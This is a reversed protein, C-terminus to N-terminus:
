ADERLEHEANKLLAKVAKEVAGDICKVVVVDEGSAEVSVQVRKLDSAPWTLLAQKRLSKETKIAAEAQDPFLKEVLDIVDAEDEWYVGGRGQRFGVKVGSFILTRPSKFLDPNAKIMDQLEAQRQAVKALVRRLDRRSEAYIKDVAIKILLVVDSLEQRAEAFDKAKTEIRYLESM